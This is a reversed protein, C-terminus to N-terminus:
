CHDLVLLYDCTDTCENTIDNYYTPCESVCM